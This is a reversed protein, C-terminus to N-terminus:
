TGEPLELSQKEDVLTPEHDGPNRNKLLLSYIGGHKVKHKPVSAPPQYTPQQQQQQQSSPPTTVTANTLSSQSHTRTRSPTTVGARPTRAFLSRQGRKAVNRPPTRVPPAPPLASSDFYSAADSRLDPASEWRSVSSVETTTVSDPPSRAQQPSSPPVLSTSTSRPTDPLAVPSALDYEDGDASHCPSPQFPATHLSPSALLETRTDSTDSCHSADLSFFACVTHPPPSSEEPPHLKASDADSEDWQQREGHPSQMALLELSLAAGLEEFADNAHAGFPAAQNDERTSLSPPNALLELDLLAELTSPPAEDRLCGGKSSQNSSSSTYREACLRPGCSSRRANGKAMTPISTSSLFTHGHTRSVDGLLNLLM